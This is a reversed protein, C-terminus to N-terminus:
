PTIVSVVVYHNPVVGFSNADAARCRVADALTM